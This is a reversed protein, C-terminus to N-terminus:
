GDGKGSEKVQKLDARHPNPKSPTERRTRSTGPTGTIGMEAGEHLQIHCHLWSSTRTQSGRVQLMETETSQLQQRPEHKARFHNLARRGAEHM